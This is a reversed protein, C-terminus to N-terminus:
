DELEDDDEEKQNRKEQFKPIPTSSNSHSPLRIMQPTLGNSDASIPNGMSEVLEDGVLIRSYREGLHGVIILNQNELSSRSNKRWKAKWTLKQM